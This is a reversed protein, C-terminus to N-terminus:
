ISINKKVAYKKRRRENYHDSNFVSLRKNVCAEWNKMIHQNEKEKLTILDVDDLEEVVEIKLSGGYKEFLESSSSKFTTNTKYSSKHESFRINPSKKTSGIYFKDTEPSVLKYIYFKM